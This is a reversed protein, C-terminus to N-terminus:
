SRLAVTVADETPLAWTEDYSNTHLSQAGGLVALRSILDLAPQTRENGFHLYLDVDWPSM